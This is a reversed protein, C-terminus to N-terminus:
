GAVCYWSLVSDETCEYCKLSKPPAKQRRTARFGTMGEVRRTHGCELVCEHTGDDCSMLSRRFSSSVVKRFINM